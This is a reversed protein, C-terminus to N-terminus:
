VQFLRGHRPSSKTLSKVDRVTHSQGNIGRIHGTYAQLGRSYLVTIGERM